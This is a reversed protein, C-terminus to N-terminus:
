EGLVAKKAAAAMNDLDEKTPHDKAAVWNDLLMKYRANDPDQELMAEYRQKVASGMKGQCMAWGALEADGALNSTVRDIIQQAQEHEGSFFLISAYRSLDDIDSTEPTIYKSYADAASKFQNNEYYVSALDRYAITYEPDLAILKNLMDIALQPNMRAYIRAYKLYAEKCQDDFYIAQEYSSAADGIKKDAALLDGELIYVDPSKPGVEKAKALYEEVKAKRAPDTMYARAIAVFIAPNKKNKGTTFGALVKDVDPTAALDLKIEGITNFVYEPDAVLGQKYCYAASDKMNEAAYIEGLYYYAEAKDTKGSQINEFLAKKAYSYMGAKYYDIGKDNNDAFLSTAGAMLVLSLISIKVNM